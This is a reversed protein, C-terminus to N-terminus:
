QRWTCYDVVQHDTKLWRRAVVMTIADLVVGMPEPLSGLFASRWKSDERFVLFDDISVAEGPASTRVGSLMCGSLMCGSLM